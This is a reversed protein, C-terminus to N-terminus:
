RRMQTGAISYRVLLLIRYVRCGESALVPTKCLVTSDKWKSCDVPVVSGGYPQPILCGIRQMM